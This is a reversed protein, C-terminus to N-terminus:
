QEVREVGVVDAGIGLLPLSDRALQARALHRRGSPRAGVLHGVVRQRRQDFVVEVCEAGRMRIGASDRDMTEVASFVGVRNTVQEPEPHITARQRHGVLGILVAEVVDGVQERDRGCAELAVHRGRASDATEGNCIGL